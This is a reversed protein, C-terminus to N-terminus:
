NPLFEKLKEGYQECHNSRFSPSAYSSAVWVDIVKEDWNFNLNQSNDDLDIKRLDLKFKQLYSTDSRKDNDKNKIDNLVYTTYSFVPFIDLLINKFNGLFVILERDKKSIVEFIKYFYQKFKDPNRNLVGMKFSQSAYPVTELQLKNKRTQIYFKQDNQTDFKEFYKLDLGRLFSIQKKDFGKLKGFKEIKYRGFNELIDIYDTISNINKELLKKSKDSEKRYPNQQIFVYSSELNGSYYVPSCDKRFKAKDIDSNLSVANKLDRGNVLDDIDEELSKFFQTNKYKQPISM